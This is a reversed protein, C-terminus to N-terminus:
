GTFVFSDAGLEVRDFAPKSTLFGGM